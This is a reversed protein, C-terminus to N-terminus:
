RCIQVFSFVLFTEINSFSPLCLSAKAYILWICHLCINVTIHILWYVVEASSKWEEPSPRNGRPDAWLLQNSVTCSCFSFLQKWIRKGEKLLETTGLTPIPVRQPDSVCLPAMLHRWFFLYIKLIIQFQMNLGINYLYQNYEEKFSELNRTKKQEIFLTIM